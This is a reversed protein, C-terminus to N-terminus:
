RADIRTNRNSINKKLTEHKLKCENNEFKGKPERLGAATSHIMMM